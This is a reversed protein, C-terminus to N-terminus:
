DTTGVERSPLLHPVWDYVVRSGLVLDQLSRNRRDLVAWALGLPLVVYAAARAISRPWTLRDQRTGLVRLGLLQAGYTRGTTAWAVALYLVSAAAAVAVTLGWSPSPVVFRAPRALFAV